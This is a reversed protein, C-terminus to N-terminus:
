QPPGLLTIDRRDIIRTLKGSWGISSLLVGCLYDITLQKKETDLHVLYSTTTTLNM